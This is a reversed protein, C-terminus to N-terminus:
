VSAVAFMRVPQLRIVVRPESTRYEVRNARAPGRVYKETIRRTWEGGEDPFVEAPGVARVTRNPREGDEREADEVDVCISARPEHALRRVHSKDPVSTMYFAHGDWEFWIPTIRPYGGRDITALRALVDRALLDAIESNNLPRPERPM